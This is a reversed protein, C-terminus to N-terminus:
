EHTQAGVRRIARPGLMEDALQRRSLDRHLRDARGAETVRVTSRKRGASAPSRNGLESRDRTAEVTGNASRHHSYTKAYRSGHLFISQRIRELLRTGVRHPNTGRVFLRLIRIEVTRSFRDHLRVWGHEVGM